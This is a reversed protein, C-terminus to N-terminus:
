VIKLILHQIADTIGLLSPQGVLAVVDPHVHREARLPVAVEHAPQGLTGRIQREEQPCQGLAAVLAHRVFTEPPTGSAKPIDRNSNNDSTWHANISSRNGM